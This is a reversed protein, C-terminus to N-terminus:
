GRQQRDEEAALRVEDADVNHPFCAVFAGDPNRLIFGGGSSSPTDGPSPTNRGITTVFCVQTGRGFPTNIVLNNQGQDEPRAPRLESFKGEM